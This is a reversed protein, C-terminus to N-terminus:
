KWEKPETEVEKGDKKEIKGKFKQLQSWHLDVNLEAGSLNPSEISANVEVKREAGPQHYLAADANVKWDDKL